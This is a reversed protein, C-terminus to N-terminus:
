QTEEIEAEIAEKTKARKFAGVHKVPKAFRFFLSTNLQYDEGFSCDISVKQDDAGAGMVVIRNVKFHEGAEMTAKNRNDTLEFPIAYINTM